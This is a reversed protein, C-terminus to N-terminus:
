CGIPPAAALYRANPHGLDAAQLALHRARELDEVDPGHQCVLAAAFLDDSDLAAPSAQTLIQRVRQLRPRDRDALDAPLEDERDAQDAAVL